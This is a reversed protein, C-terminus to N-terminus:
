INEQTSYVRLSQLMHHHNHHAKRLVPVQLKVFAGPRFAAV